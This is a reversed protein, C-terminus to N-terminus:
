IWRSSVRIGSRGSEALEAVAKVPVRRGKITPAGSLRDPDVEVYRLNRLKRPPGSGALLGSILRLDRADMRQWGKQGIDYTGSKDKFAIRRSEKPGYTALKGESYTLPWDAGYQERLSEITQRLDEYPAGRDRLEHVVMAEAVDQYSYVRPLDAAQSSRIYENKAWQGIM